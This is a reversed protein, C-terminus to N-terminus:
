CILLLLDQDGGRYLLAGLQNVTVTVTIIATRRKRRRKYYLKEQYIFKLFPHYKLVHVGFILISSNFFFKQYSFSLNEYYKNIVPM